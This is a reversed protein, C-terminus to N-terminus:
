KGFSDKCPVPISRPACAPGPGLGPALGAWSLGLGWGSRISMAWGARAQFFIGFDFDPRDLIDTLDLNASFFVVNRTENTAMGPLKEM